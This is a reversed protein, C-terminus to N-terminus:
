SSAARDVVESLAPHIHVTNYIDKLTGTGSKMAVLVEHILTSTDPGIIWCGLIRENAGVLFKVFGNEERLAHGM